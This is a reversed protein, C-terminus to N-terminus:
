RRHHTEPFLKEIKRQQLPRTSQLESQHYDYSTFKPLMHETSCIIFKLSQVANTTICQAMKAAHYGLKTRPNWDGLEM